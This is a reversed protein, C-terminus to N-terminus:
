KQFRLPLEGGSEKIVELSEILATVYIPVDLRGAAWKGVTNQSVGIAEALLKQWGWNGFLKKSKSRFENTTMTFAESENEEEINDATLNNLTITNENVSIIGRKVLSNLTRKNFSQKQIEVVGGNRRIDSIVEKQVQSLEESGIFDTVVGEIDFNDEIDKEKLIHGIKM